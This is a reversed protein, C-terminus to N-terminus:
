SCGKQRHSGFCQCHHSSSIWLLLYRCFFSFKRLHEESLFFVALRVDFRFFLLWFYFLGDGDHLLNCYIIKGATEYLISYYLATLPPLFSSQEWQLVVLNSVSVLYSCCKQIKEVRMKSSM